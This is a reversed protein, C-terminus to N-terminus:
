PAVTITAYVPDFNGTHDAEVQHARVGTVAWNGAPTGVSVAHSAAVGKQWNLVVDSANSGPATFRVDFFTQSTLVDSGSVTASYSSGAVVNQRDFRLGNVLGTVTPMLKAVFADFEYLGGHNDSQFPNVTPFNDSTTGGIVYVAGTGDLAIGSGTDRRDGGLYTSYEIASGDAALTTIFVDTCLYTGCGGKQSPARQIASETVPFDRSTTWGTIYAHGARDVAIGGAGDEGTGGLYTSYALATGSADIKTIFADACVNNPLGCIGVGPAKPFLAGPTTIHDLALTWGTVYANGGGDVAIGTPRSIDDPDFPFIPGTNSGGLYSSYALATGTPNLKSVFMYGRTPQFAGETTPFQGFTEGAVYASGDTDVAIATGENYFDGGLYTSYILSNGAANLRSVFTNWCSCNAVLKPQFAGPTVPFDRSRTWGTVYADGTAGIAIAQPHDDGTGGLYTSYVLAGTASLKAIFGHACPYNGCSKTASVQFAAPTTPFNTSSTEGTIYLNGLTDMAIGTGGSGSDGGLYTSYVLQGSADFKTVFASSEGGISVQFPDRTPFDGSNTYGVVYANGANDVTIASAHDTGSGGLYTSYVLPDVILRRAPDHAGVRLGVTREDSMVYEADVSQRSSGSEQYASPRPQRLSEGASYVMLDGAANIEIRDAGDFRMRIRTPDSHPEVIFSYELTERSTDYEVDIGPYMQKYTVGAYRAIGTRWASPDAGIFNNTVGPLRTVAIPVRGPTAGVFRMRIAATGNGLRWTAGRSTLALSMSGRRAVFVSEVSAPDAYREFGRYIGTQRFALVGSVSTSSRHHRAHVTKTIGLIRASPSVTDLVLSTGLWAATISSFRRRGKVKLGADWGPQKADCDMDNYLVRGVNVQIIGFSTTSLLGATGGLVVFAVACSAARRM